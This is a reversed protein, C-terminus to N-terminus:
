KWAEFCVKSSYFIRKVKRGCKNAFKIKKRNSKVIDRGWVKMRGWVDNKVLVVCKKQSQAIKKRRAAM